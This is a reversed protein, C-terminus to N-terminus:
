LNCFDTYFIDERDCYEVLILKRLSDTGPVGFRTRINERRIYNLKHPETKSQYICVVQKTSQSLFLQHCGVGEWRWARVLLNILLTDVVYRHYLLYIHMCTTSLHLTAYMTSLANVYIIENWKKRLVNGELDLLEEGM